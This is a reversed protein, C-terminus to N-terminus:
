MIAGFAVTFYFKEATVILEHLLEKEVSYACSIEFINWTKFTLQVYLLSNGFVILFSLLIQQSSLQECYLISPRAGIFVSKILGNDNFMSASM